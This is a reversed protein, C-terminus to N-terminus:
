IKSSWPAWRLVPVFWVLTPFTWTALTIWRSPVNLRPLAFMTALVLGTANRAAHMVHDYVQIPMLVAFVSQSLILWALEQRPHKVLAVVSLIMALLAPLAVFVFASLRGPEMNLQPLIGGLPILQLTAGAQLPLVHLSSFLYIEWALLPTLCALAVATNKWNKQVLQAIALSLPFLLTTEKTITALALLVAASARKKWTWLALGCAALGYALPETLDRSFAMFIGVYLGYALAYWPSVQNMHLWQGLVYCALVIIVLNIFILAWPILNPQGFSITRAIVALLIRQLRYPPNDLHPFANAGDRALFYVFQGDYGSRGVPDFQAYREGLWAFWLPNWDHIGLAVASFVLYFCLIAIAVSLASDIKLPNRENYTHKHLITGDTTRKM